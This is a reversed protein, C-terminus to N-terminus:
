LIPSAVGDRQIAQKGLGPEERGEPVQPMERERRAKEYAESFRRMVVEAWRRRQRAFYTHRPYTQDKIRRIRVRQKM